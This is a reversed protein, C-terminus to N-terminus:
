YDGAAWQVPSSPTHCFGMGTATHKEIRASLFPLNNNFTYIVGYDKSFVLGIICVAYVALLLVFEATM